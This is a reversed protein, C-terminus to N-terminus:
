ESTIVRWSCSQRPRRASRLDRLCVDREVAKRLGARGAEYLHIIVETDTHSAFRHGKNELEQRLEAFNYIEGNYTIWVTGDENCMPM